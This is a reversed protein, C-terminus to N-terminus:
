YERETVRVPVSVFVRTSLHNSGICEGDKVILWPMANIAAFFGGCRGCHVVEGLAIDDRWFDHGCHMIGGSKKYKYHQYAGQLDVPTRFKYTDM